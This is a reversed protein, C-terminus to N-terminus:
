PVTEIYALIKDIIFLYYAKGLEFDQKGIISPPDKRLSSFPKVLCISTNQCHVSAEGFLFISYILASKTGLTHNM